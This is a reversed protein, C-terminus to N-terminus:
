PSVIQHYGSSPLLFDLRFDIYSIHYKQFRSTTSHYPPLAPSSEGRNSVAKKLSTALLVLFHFDGYLWRQFLAGYQRYKGGYLIAPVGNTCRIYSTMSFTVCHIYASCVRTRTRVGGPAVASQLQDTMSVTYPGTALHLLHPFAWDSRPVVGHRPVPLCPLTEPFPLPLPSRSPSHPISLSFCATAPLGFDLGPYGPVDFGSSPIALSPILM